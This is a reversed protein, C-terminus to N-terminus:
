DLGPGAKVPKHLWGLKYVVMGVCHFAIIIVEQVPHEIASQVIVVAIVTCYIISNFIRMRPYNSLGENTSHPRLRLVLVGAVAAFLTLSEAM